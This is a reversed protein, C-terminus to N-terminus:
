LWIRKIGKMSIEKNTQILYQINNDKDVAKRKLKFHQMDWNSSIIAM